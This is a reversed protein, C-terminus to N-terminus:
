IVSTLTWLVGLGCFQPFVRTKCFSKIELQNSSLEWAHLALTPLNQHQFKGKVQTLLNLFYPLRIWASVLLQLVESFWPSQLWLPAILVIRCQSQHFRKLISPILIAPPFAYAHLNNWNMSLTDIVFAQNDPLTSVYLPHKHNFLTAFLDVNPFSLMQFICNAVTQDLPWETNLPKDLRSLHDALINFKGPIHRIRLIIDHELCWHLIANRRTQQYILVSNYQQHIDYCLLPTHLTHSEETCFSHGNNRSHQYPAPIPRGGLSWSLITEDTRSSSGM